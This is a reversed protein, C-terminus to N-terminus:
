AALRGAAIAVCLLGVVLPPAFSEGFRLHTQVAGIMLIAVCLAAIPTLLPAIGTAAPAILGVAGLLEAFGLLKIRERPWAKAWHMRQELKERPLAVKNAGAVAIVLAVLVQVVWLFTNLM